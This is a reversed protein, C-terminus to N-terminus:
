RIILTFRLCIGNKKEYNDYKIYYHYDVSRTPYALKISTNDGGVIKVIYINDNFYLTVIINNVFLSIICINYSHSPTKVVQIFVLNM